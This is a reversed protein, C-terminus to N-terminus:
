AFGFSDGSCRGGRILLAFGKFGSEIMSDRSRNTRDTWIHWIGDLHWGFSLYFHLVRAASATVRTGGLALKRLKQALDFILQRRRRLALM